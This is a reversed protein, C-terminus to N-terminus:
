QEEEELGIGFSLWEDEARIEHIKFRSLKDWAGGPPVVLGQFYIDDGLLAGFKQKVFNLMEGAGADEGSPKAYRVEGVRQLNLGFRNVGPRYQAIATVPFRIEREGRIFDIGTLSITLLGEDIGVAIPRRDDLKVSWSEMHTGLRYPRPVDGIFNQLFAAFDKDAVRTGGLVTESLNNAMSEHFDFQADHSRQLTPPSSSAATQSPAALVANIQFHEATSSSHVAPPLVDWDAAQALLEERYYRNAEAILDQIQQDFERRTEQQTRCSTMRATQPQMRDVRRQALQRLLESRAAVRTCATDTTATAAAPFSGLGDLTFFLQKSARVQSRTLSRATIPGRQGVTAARVQAELTIALLGREVSPLLSASVRGNTHAQGRVNTRMVVISVPSSEQFKREVLFALPRPTFTCNVNPRRAPGGSRETTEAQPDDALISHALLHAALIGSGIALVRGPRGILLSRLDDGNARVETEHRSLCTSM